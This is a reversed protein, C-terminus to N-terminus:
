IGCNEVAQNSQQVCYAASLLETAADKPLYAPADLSWLVRFEEKKMLSAIDKPNNIGCKLKGALQPLDIISRAMEWFIRKDTVTIFKKSSLIYNEDPDMWSQGEKQIWFPESVDGINSSDKGIEYSSNTSNKGTPTTPNSALNSQNRKPGITPVYGFSHFEPNQSSNKESDFAVRIKSYGTSASAEVVSGLLVTPTQTAGKRFVAVRFGTLISPNTRWCNNQIASSLKNIHNEIQSVYEILLDEVLWHVSLRYIMYLNLNAFLNLIQM